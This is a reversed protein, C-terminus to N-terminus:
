AALLPYLAIRTRADTTFGSLRAALADYPARSLQLAADYGAREICEIGARYVSRNVAVRAKRFENRTM